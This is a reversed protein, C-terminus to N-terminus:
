KRGQEVSYQRMPDAQEAAKKLREAENEAEVRAKFRADETADRRWWVFSLIGYALLAGLVAGGVIGVLIASKPVSKKAAGPKTEKSKARDANAPGLDREGVHIAKVDITESKGTVTGIDVSPTTAAHPERAAGGAVESKWRPIPPDAM